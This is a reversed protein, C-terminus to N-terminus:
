SNKSSSYSSSNDNKLIRKLFSKSITPLEIGIELVMIESNGNKRTRQPDNMIKARSYLYKLLFDEWYHIM